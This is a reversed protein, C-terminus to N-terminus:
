TAVILPVALLALSVLTAVLSEAIPQEIWEGAGIWLSLAFDTIELLVSLSLSLSLVSPSSHQGCGGLSYVSSTWCKFPWLNIGCV